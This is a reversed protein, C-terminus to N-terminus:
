ANTWGKSAQPWDCSHPGSLTEGYSTPPVMKMGSQRKGMENAKERHSVWEQTAWGSFVKQTTTETWEKPEVLHLLTLSLTAM